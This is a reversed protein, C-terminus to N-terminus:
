PKLQYDIQVEEVVHDYRGDVFPLAVTATFSFATHFTCESALWFEPPPPVANKPMAIVPATLGGAKLPAPVYASPLKSTSAFVAYAAGLLRAQMLASTHGEPFEPWASVLYTCKLRLPPKTAVWGFATRELQPEASSLEADEEMAYLFISVANKGIVSGPLGFSAEPKEPMGALRATLFEGLAETFLKLM